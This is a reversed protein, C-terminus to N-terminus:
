TGGQEATGAASGAVGIAIFQASGAFVFLSMAMAAWFSLGTGSALTGFIIGFPIAGLILPITDRAGKIFERGFESTM